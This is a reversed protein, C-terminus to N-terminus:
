KLFNHVSQSSIKHLPGPYYLLSNNHFKPPSRPIRLHSFSCSFVMIDTAYGSQPALLSGFGKPTLREGGPNLMKVRHAIHSYHDAKVLSTQTRQTSRTKTYLAIKHLQEFVSSVLLILNLGTYGHSDSHWIQHKYWLKCSKERRQEM